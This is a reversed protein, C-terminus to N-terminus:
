PSCKSEGLLVQFDEDLARLRGIAPHNKGMKRSFNAITQEMSVKHTGEILKDAYNVIREELTQPMYSKKPWGLKEAEDQPIGAGVHREIIRIVSEPLSAEAVIRAGALAHNVGHTKSRGIDHLIAGIEVLEVDVKYGKKQLIKAIKVALKAVTKCHQIVRPACGSQKLLEIAEQRSPLRESV